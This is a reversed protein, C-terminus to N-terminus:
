PRISAAWRFSSTASRWTRCKSKPLLAAVGTFVEEAEKNKGLEMYLYGAELLLVVDKQPADIIGHVMLEDTM